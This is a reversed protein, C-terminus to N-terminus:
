RRPRWPGTSRRAWRAPMCASVPARLYMRLLDILIYATETNELSFFAALLNLPDTFGYYSMTTMVDMGQGLNFDVMQFGQGALLGRVARGLSGVAVYAQRLGDKLSGTWILTRGYGALMLLMLSIAALFMATYLWLWKLGHARTSDNM